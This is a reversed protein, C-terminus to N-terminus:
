SGGILSFSGADIILAGTIALSGARRMRSTPEPAPPRSRSRTRRRPTPSRSPIPAAKTSPSMTIPTQCISLVATAMPGITQTKVLRRRQGPGFARGAGRKCFQFQQHDPHFYIATRPRSASTLPIPTEWFRKLQALTITDNATYTAGDSLDTVSKTLVSGDTYSFWRLRTALGSHSRARHFRCNATAGDTQFSTGGALLNFEVALSNSIEAYGHARERRFSLRDRPELAHSGNPDNQLIFAM